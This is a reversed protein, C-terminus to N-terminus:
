FEAINSMVQSASRSDFRRRWQRFLTEMFDSFRVQRFLTMIEKAAQAVPFVALYTTCKIVIMNVFIFCRIVIKKMMQCFSSRPLSLGDLRTVGSPDFRSNGSV